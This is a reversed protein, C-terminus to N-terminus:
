NFKARTPVNRYDMNPNNRLFNVINNLVSIDVSINAVQEPLLYKTFLYNNVAVHYTKTEDLKKGNPYTMNVVKINDGPTRQAVYEFGAPLMLCNRKDTFETEILERIESPKLAVIVLYNNFPYVRLIDAYTVPGADLRAARVSSCNVVSFDVGPLVLAADAVMHGLQKHNPIEYQLTVFPEKLFPNNEYIRIKEVIASDVVGEWTALDIMENTIQSVVGKKLLITTKGVHKARSYAQTILVNNQIIPEKLLTHSHGGIILDLEPMSDALILDERLGIHTLAVFVHSKKRLFRYNVATEIPDFFEIDAVRELLVSPKGTLRDVETLGLFAIKIGNKEFIHYPKVGELGSGSGELKINASIAISKADKLRENLLEVGFDFEHNGIVAIDVGIHNELDIIPFQSKEHYDNYPNGTFRDGASAVIVNKYTSRTEKVFASLKPLNEFDGHLDNYSLIV